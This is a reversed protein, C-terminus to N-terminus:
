GFFPHVHKDYRKKLGPLQEIEIIGSASDHGVKHEDFISYSMHPKFLVEYQYVTLVDSSFM